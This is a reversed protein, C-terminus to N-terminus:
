GAGRIWGDMPVDECLRVVPEGRVVRGDDCAVKETPGTLRVRVGPRVAHPPGAVRCRVVFGETM